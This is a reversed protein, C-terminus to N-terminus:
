QYHDVHEFYTRPDKGFRDEYYKSFRTTHRIGVSYAVATLNDYVSDELLQRAKQLAVERQFKKPSLGTIKILRNRFQRAGINFRDAADELLFDENELETLIVAEVQQIFAQDASCSEEGVGVEQRVAKSNENWDAERSKKVRHRALMNQVRARLEQPSFPKPLYDDVGISLAQLRYQEEDLATLMIVPLDKYKEQERLHRLLTLGDMEPMMVDSIILEVCHESLYSLAQKGHLAVAVECRDALLRKIFQQMELNDEVILIRPRGEEQDAVKPIPTDLEEDEEIPTEEQNVLLPSSPAEVPLYPVNLTFTSGEGLVSEVTLEGGMLRSYERALALGIGTGGQIPAEPQKSQFYRDFVYPLDEAAIGDGTDVVRILLRNDQQQVLLHIAGGGHTHKIANSLLNNLVKELMQHDVILYEDALRVEFDLQIDLLQALSEFNGVIREFFASIAVERMKVELRDSELKSLALIDDVLGRLKNTNGLALGIQDKIEAPIMAQHSIEQLPAGILTLPTRLEHSINAFFRSKAHDLSSLKENKAAIEDRQQQLLHNAKQKSRYYRLLVYSFIALVVIGMIAGYQTVRQRQITQSLVLKERESQFTISDREKEFAHEAQMRAIILSNEDNHLSDRNIQYTKLVRYAESLQERKEYIPHLRGAALMGYERVGKEDADNLASEDAAIAAEIAGKMEHAKGLNYYIQARAGFVRASNAETLALELYYIASDYKLQKLHVKALVQHATYKTGTQGLDTLIELAENASQTAEVLDEMEVQLEALLQLRFAIQKKNGSLKAYELARRKYDLAGELLGERRYLESLRSYSYEKWHESAGDQDAVALSEIAYDLARQYQGLDGFYQSVTILNEFLDWYQNFRKSEIRLSDIQFIISDHHQLARYADILNRRHAGRKVPLSYKISLKAAKLLGEFDDTKSAINRISNNSFTIGSLQHIEKYILLSEEYSHLSQEFDGISFYYKGLRGLMAAKWEQSNDARKDKLGVEILKKMDSLEGALDYCDILATYPYIRDCDLRELIDWSKSFFVKAKEYDKKTYCYFIGYDAWLRWELDKDAIRQAVTLSSDYYSLGAQTDTLVYADGLLRLAWGEALEHNQERAEALVKLGIKVGEEGYSRYVLNYGRNVELLLRYVEHQLKKALAIGKEIFQAAQLSDQPNETLRYTLDHVVPLKASDSIESEFLNILSDIKVQPHTQPHGTKCFFYLVLITLTRFSFFRDLVNTLNM